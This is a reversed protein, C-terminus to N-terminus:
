PLSDNDIRQRGVDGDTYMSKLAAQLHIGMM